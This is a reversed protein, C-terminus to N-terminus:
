TVAFGIRITEKVASRSQLFRKTNRTKRDALIKLIKFAVDNAM